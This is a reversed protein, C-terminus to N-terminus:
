KYKIEEEMKKGLVLITQVFNERGENRRDYMFIDSTVNDSVLILGGLSPWAAM